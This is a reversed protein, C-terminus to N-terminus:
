KNLYEIIEDALERHGVEGYHGDHVVGNSETYMDTRRRIPIDTIISHKGGFEEDCWNWFVVKIGKLEAWERIFSIWDNVEKSYFDSFEYRNLIIHQAVEETVYTGDICATEISGKWSSAVIQAWDMMGNPYKKALRYRMIPSWGFVVIDGSKIEKHYQLFTAFIQNCSSGSKGKNNSIMGYTDALFECYTKGERGLWTIYPGSNGLLATMSDGFAWVSNM